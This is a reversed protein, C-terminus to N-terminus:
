HATSIGAGTPEAAAMATYDRIKLSGSWVQLGWGAAQYGTSTNNDTNIWFNGMATSLGSGQVLLYLNTGDNTVKLTQATGSNTTLASVSSWDSVNGDITITAASAKPLVGAPLLLTIMLVFALFLGFSRKSRDFLRTM